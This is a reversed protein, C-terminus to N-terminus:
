VILKVIEYFEHLSIIHIHAPTFQDYDSMWVTGTSWRSFLFLGLSYLRILNKTTTLQIGRRDINPHLPLTFAGSRSFRPPKLRPTHTYSWLVAILTKFTRAYRLRTAAHGPPSRSTDYTRIRSTGVMTLYRNWLMKVRLYCTENSIQFLQIKYSGCMIIHIDIDWREIWFHILHIYITWTAAPVRM